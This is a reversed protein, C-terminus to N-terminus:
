AFYRRWGKRRREVESEAELIKGLVDVAQYLGAGYNGARLLPTVHEHLIHDTEADSLSAELGYGVESEIRREQFSLLILLGRNEPGGMDWLNALWFIYEAPQLPATTLVTVVLLEAGTRTFVEQCRQAIREAEETTLVGALDTVPGAQAPPSPMQTQLTALTFDCHPCANVPTALERHCHPCRVM